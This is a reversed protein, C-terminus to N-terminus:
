PQSRRAQDAGIAANLEDPTTGTLVDDDAADKHHAYWLGGTVWIEDYESDWAFALADLARQEDVGLVDRQQKGNGSPADNM